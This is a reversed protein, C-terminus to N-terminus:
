PGSGLALAILFAVVIIVVVVIPWKVRGWGEPRDFIRVKNGAAGSTEAAPREPREGM